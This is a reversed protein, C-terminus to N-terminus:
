WYRQAFFFQACPAKILAPFQSPSNVTFFVNVLAWMNQLAVVVGLMLGVLVTSITLYCNLVHKIDVEADPDALTQM